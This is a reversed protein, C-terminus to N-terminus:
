QSFWEDSLVAKNTEKIITGTFEYKYRNKTCCNSHIKYMFKVQDWSLPFSGILQEAGSIVSENYIPKFTLPGPWDSLWKIEKRHKHVTVASITIWIFMQLFQVVVQCQIWMDINLYIDNKLDSSTGQHSNPMQKWTRLGSLARQVDKDHIDHSLRRDSNWPWSAATDVNRRTWHRIQFM